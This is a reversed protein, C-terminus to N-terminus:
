KDMYEWGKDTAKYYLRKPMIKIICYLFKNLRGPICIINKRKYLEKLSISVIDKVNMWRIIGRNKLLNEDMQLRSHFDTRVFGPCLCQVRINYKKLELGLCESFTILFSKTSCYMASDRFANFGAMSAINIIYGKNNRKMIEGFVKSLKLSVNIHVNVMELSFEIKDKMFSEGGGYGVNNILFEISNDDKFEQIFSDLEKENELNIIRIQVNIKYLKEIDMKVKRLIEERRGLLVLDYGEEGLRYSFERGIGSTAGTIIAKGM